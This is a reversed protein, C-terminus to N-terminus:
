FSAKLIDNLIGGRKLASLLVHLLDFMLICIDVVYGIPWVSFHNLM